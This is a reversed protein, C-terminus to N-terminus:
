NDLWTLAVQNWGVITPSKSLKDRFMQHLEPKSLINLIGQSIRKYSDQNDRDLDFHIGDRNNFVGFKSLLPICGASLSERISICDIELASDTIYLHFSSQWKERIILEMGVRGHDMVGPQSLLLLMSDKFQKDGIYNMGYYVHLEARPEYKYITPWIYTLIEFLGRSYCSCYCFRYPNREPVDNPKISFDSERIGNVIISYKSEHLKEKLYDQYCELHYNSKFFIKDIKSKYLKYDFRFLYNNDHLDVFLKKANIPFQLMCNVGALRWLILTNYKGGYSFNKWDFYDVGQYNCEPVKGYVAVKKGLKVWESSLHVVAQESGGLSSDHPNWEISTGGTFYVIDHESTYENKYLLKYREFYSKPIILNDCVTANPYIGISTLVCIEKKNYTNFGHSSGVITQLPDLQIMPETFNFTFSSEEANSALNDHKGTYEKKWAMCDNTSHNPGFFAKFKYLRELSYDYLYKGSCGAILCKSGAFSKVVHEVRTPPYYDDDDMCVTIDGVCAKNGINRLEGLKKGSWSIYDVKFPLNLKFRNINKENEIGDSESSSGEVIVWQIINKYTQEKILDVLVLITEKRKLQSVTILSVSSNMKGTKNQKGM